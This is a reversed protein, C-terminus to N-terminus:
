EWAKERLKAQESVARFKFYPIRDLNGLGLKDFITGRVRATVEALRDERVAEDSLIVRVYIAPDGSWDPADNLVVRVVDPALKRVVPDIQDPGPIPALAPM